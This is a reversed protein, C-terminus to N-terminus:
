DPISSYKRLREQLRKREAPPVRAWEQARKRKAAGMFPGPLQPTKAGKERTMSLLLQAVLTMAFDGHSGQFTQGAVAAYFHTRSDELLGSLCAWADSCPLARVEALRLGFREMADFRVATRHKAM